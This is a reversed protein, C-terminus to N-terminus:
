VNAPEEGYWEQSGDFNSKGALIHEAGEWPFCSACYYAEFAPGDLDVIASSLQIRRRCKLCSVSVAHAGASQDSYARTM